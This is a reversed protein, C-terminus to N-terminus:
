LNINYSWHGCIPGLSFNKYMWGNIDKKCWRLKGNITFCDSDLRNFLSIKKYYDKALEQIGAKQIEAITKNASYLREIIMTIDFYSDLFFYKCNECARKWEPMYLLDKALNVLDKNSM